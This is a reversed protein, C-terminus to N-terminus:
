MSEKFPPVPGAPPQPTLNQNPGFVARQNEAADGGAFNGDNFTLPAHPFTMVGTTPSFSINSGAPPAPLRRLENRDGIFNIGSVMGQNYNGGQATQSAESHDHMPYCLPSMTVHIPTNGLRTGVKPIAMNVEQIPPWTTVGPPTDGARMEGNQMVVGFEPIPTPVVPLPSSLDPRNIGLNNPVDPPRMYPVLWDWVDLPHSAFTDVWILNDQIGRVVNPDLDAFANYETRQTSESRVRLVYVHNAHIHMCHTWMGANLVRIVCPEGVRLHPCVFPTNHSFHGSQGSITFYQPTEGANKPPKNAGDPTFDNNLFRNRFDGAPFEQGPRFKGVAAFLNPSAEHILWVYQRFPPTNPFPAPNVGGEAWALGPFWPRAGLDAFLQTVNPHTGAPDAASYPTGNAPNPLVVFAGHLGMVRNVPANLTDFYLYTGASRAPVRITGNFTANPAIPGTTFGIGPIALEHREDLNNKVRIPITAGEQTFILPGPTEAPLTAEKYIWFYCQAINADPNLAPDQHTVMDKLADTITFDLSQVAINGCGELAEGVVLTAMTGGITSAIFGRRNILM